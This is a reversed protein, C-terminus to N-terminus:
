LSKSVTGLVGNVFKKDDDSAYKKCLEVAENIAVGTPVTDDFLMEFIGIRLICLTVRPIRNIKWGISNKEILEDIQDLKEFIGKVENEVYESVKEGRLSKAAEIIEELPEEHFTKEFTLILIEERQESRTM